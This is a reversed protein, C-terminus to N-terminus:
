LTEAGPDEPADLLRAVKKQVEIILAAHALKRELRQIERELRQNEKKLPTQPSAKRGARGATRMGAADKRWADVTTSYLGERRLIVGIGGRPAANVEAVIQRKYEETYIRREGPQHVETPVPEKATTGNVHNRTSM